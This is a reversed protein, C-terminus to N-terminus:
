WDEIEEYLFERCDAVSAEDKLGIRCLGRLLDNKIAECLSKDNKIVVAQTYMVDDRCDARDRTNVIRDCYSSDGTIFGLAIRDEGGFYMKVASVDGTVHAQGIKACFDKDVFNVLDGVALHCSSFGQDSVKGTERFEKLFKRFNTLIFRSKCNEVDQYKTLVNCENVNSEAIAKCAHYQGVLAESKKMLESLRFAQERETIEQQQATLSDELIDKELARFERGPETEAYALCIGCILLGTLFVFVVMYHKKM